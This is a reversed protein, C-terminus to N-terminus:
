LAGAKMRAQATALEAQADLYARRTALEANQILLPVDGDPTRSATTAHAAKGLDSRASDVAAKKAIVDAVLSQWRAELEPDDITDVPVSPDATTAM